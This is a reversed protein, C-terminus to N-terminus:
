LVPYVFYPQPVNLFLIEFSAGEVVHTAEFHQKALAVVPFMGQSNSPCKIIQGTGQCQLSLIGANTSNDIWVAQVTTFVENEGMDDFDLPQTTGLALGKVQARVFKGGEKPGYGLFTRIAALHLNPM